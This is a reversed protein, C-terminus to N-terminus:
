GQAGELKRIREALDATQVAEIHAKVAASMAALASPTVGGSVAAKLLAATAKPLDEAGEIAPLKMAPLPHEKQPPCLRELCLKMASMDGNLAKALLVDLLADRSDAIREVVARSIKNPVGRKRGSPNGSQGKSFQGANQTM